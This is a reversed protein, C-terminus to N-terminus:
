SARSELVELVLVGFSEMSVTGSLFFDKVLDYMERQCVVEQAKPLYNLLVM